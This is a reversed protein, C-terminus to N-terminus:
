IGWAVRKWNGDAEKEYRDGYITSVAKASTETVIPSGSDKLRECYNNIEEQYQEEFRAFADIDEIASFFTRQTQSIERVASLAARKVDTSDSSSISKLLRSKLDSFMKELTSIADTTM